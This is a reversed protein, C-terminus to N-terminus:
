NNGRLGDRVDSVSVVVNMDCSSCNAGLISMTNQIQYDAVARAFGPSFRLDTGARGSIMGGWEDGMSAQVPMKMTDHVEVEVLEVRVSRQMLPGRLLTSIAVLISVVSVGM